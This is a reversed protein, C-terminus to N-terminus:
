GMPPDLPPCPGRFFWLFIPNRLLVPGSGRFFWLAVLGANLTPGDDACWPFAMLIDPLHHGAKLPIQIGAHLLYWFLFIPNRLLVPGSRRFFRLAVLGANLTPGDNARWPFRFKFPTERAPWYYGAKQPIQIQAHLLYWFVHVPDNIKRHFEILLLSLFKGEFVLIVPKYRVIEKWVDFSAIFCNSM